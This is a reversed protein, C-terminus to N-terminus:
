TIFEANDQLVPFQNKDHKGRNWNDLAKEWKSKVPRMGTPTPAQTSPGMHALATKRLKKSFDEYYDNIEDPDYSSIDNAGPEKNEKKESIMKRFSTLEKKYKTSIPVRASSNTSKAKSLEDIDEDDLKMFRKWTTTTAHELAEIVEHGETAKVDFVLRLLVELDQDLVYIPGTSGMSTTSGADAQAKSLDAAAKDSRAQAQLVKDALIRQKETAIDAMKEEREEKTRKRARIKIKVVGQQELDQYNYSRSISPTVLNAESTEENNPTEAM